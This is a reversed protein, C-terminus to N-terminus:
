GSITLPDFLKKKLEPPAVHKYGISAGFACMGLETPAAHKVLPVRRSGLSFMGDKRSEYRSAPTRMAAVFM